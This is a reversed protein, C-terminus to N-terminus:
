KHLAKFKVRVAIAEDFLEHLPLHTSEQKEPQWVFEKPLTQKLREITEIHTNMAEGLQGVGKGEQYAKIVLPSLQTIQENSRKLADVALLYQQYEFLIKAEVLYKDALGLHYKFSSLTGWHWWEKVRDLLRSAKYLKHGPMYSPYPLTHAFVRSVFTLYIALVLLYKMCNKKCNGRHVLLSLM